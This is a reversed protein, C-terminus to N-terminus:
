RVSERDACFDVAAAAVFAFDPSEADDLEEPPEDDAPPDDPSEAPPEVVEEPVAVVPEDGDEDVPDEVMTEADDM